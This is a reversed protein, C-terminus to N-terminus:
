HGRSRDLAQQLLALTEELCDRVESTAAVLMSNSTGVRDRGDGDGDEPLADHVGLIELHSNSLRRLQIGRAMAKPVQKSRARTYAM